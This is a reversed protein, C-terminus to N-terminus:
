ENTVMENLTEELETKVVVGHIHKVIKGKTDYIITEPMAYGSIGSYFFDNVDIIKELNNYSPITSLYREIQAQPEKRNIVLFRVNKDKFSGAVEDLIPFEIAAYPSWSAWVNVVLITDEYERLSIPNSGVDLFLAAPDESFLTKKAEDQEREISKSRIYFTLVVLAIVVTLLLALVLLNKKSM